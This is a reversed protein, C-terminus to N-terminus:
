DIPVTKKSLEEETAYPNIARWMAKEETTLLRVKTGTPGFKNAMHFTSGDQGKSIGKSLIDKGHVAYYAQELDIGKSWLDLTAKDLETPKVDIGTTQKIAELQSTIYAKRQEAEIAELKKMRPDNDLRAKIIPEIVKDIDEPNYGHDKLTKTERAKVMADYSDYGLEKAVKDQTEKETRSRVQNIRNTMTETMDPETKSDNEAPDNEKEAADPQPQSDEDDKFLDAIDIEFVDVSEDLKM